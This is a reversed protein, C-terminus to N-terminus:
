LGAMLAAREQRRFADMQFQIEMRRANAPYTRIIRGSPETVDVTAQSMGYGRRAELECARNAEDWQAQLRAYENDQIAAPHSLASNPATRSKLQADMPSPNITCQTRPITRVFDARTQVFCHWKSKISEHFCFEELEFDEVECRLMVAITPYPAIIPAMALLAYKLLVLCLPDNLGDQGPLMIQLTVEEQTKQARLVAIKALATYENVVMQSLVALPLKHRNSGEFQSVSMTCVQLFPVDTVNSHVWQVLIPMTPLMAVLRTFQDPTFTGDTTYTKTVRDQTLGCKSSVFGQYPSDLVASALMSRGLWSVPASIAPYFVYTKKLETCLKPGNAFIPIHIITQATVPFQKLEPHFRRTPVITLRPRAAGTPPEGKEAFLKSLESVTCCPIHEARIAPTDFLAKSELVAQVYARGPHAALQELILNHCTTQVESIQGQDADLVTRVSDAM